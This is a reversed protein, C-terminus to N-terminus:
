KNPSYESEENCGERRSVSLHANGGRAVVVAPVALVQVLGNQRGVIDASGAEAFKKRVGDITVNVRLRKVHGVDRNGAKASMVNHIHRGLM